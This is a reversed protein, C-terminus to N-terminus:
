LKSAAKFRPILIEDSGKPMKVITFGCSGCQRVEKNEIVQPYIVAGCKVCKQSHMTPLRARPQYSARPLKVRQGKNFLIV